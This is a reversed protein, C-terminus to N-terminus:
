DVVNMIDQIREVDRMKLKLQIREGKTHGTAYQKIVTDVQTAPIIYIKYLQIDSIVRLTIDKNILKYSVFIYSGATNCLKKHNDELINFTNSTQISAKIEYIMDGKYADYYGFKRQRKNYSLAFKDCIHQEILMGVRQRFVGDNGKM